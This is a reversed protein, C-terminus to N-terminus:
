HNSRLVGAGVKPQRCRTFLLYTLLGYISLGVVLGFFPLIIFPIGILASVRYGPRDVQVHRLLTLHIAPVLVAIGILWLWEDPRPMIDLPGAAM